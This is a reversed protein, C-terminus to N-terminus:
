STDCSECGKVALEDVKTICPKPIRFEKALQHDGDVTCLTISSSSQGVLFGVAICEPLEHAAEAVAEATARGIDDAGVRSDSDLFSVRLMTRDEM